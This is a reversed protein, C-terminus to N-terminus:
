NQLYKLEAAHFEFYRDNVCAM